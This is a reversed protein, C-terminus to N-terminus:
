KKTCYSCDNELKLDLKLMIEFQMFHTENKVM